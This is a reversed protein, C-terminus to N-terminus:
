YVTFNAHELIEPTERNRGDSTKGVRRPYHPAPNEALSIGIPLTRSQKLTNTPESFKQAAFIYTPRVAGYRGSPLVNEWCIVAEEQLYGALFSAREPRMTIVIFKKGNISDNNNDASTRRIPNRKNNILIEIKDNIKKFILELSCGKDLLLEIAFEL